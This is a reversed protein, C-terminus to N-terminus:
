VVKPWQANMSKHMGKANRDVQIRLTTTSVKM